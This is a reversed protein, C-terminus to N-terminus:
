NEENWWERREEKLWERLGILSDLHRFKIGNLKPYVGIPKFTRGDIVDQGCCWDAFEEDTLSNLWERNTM